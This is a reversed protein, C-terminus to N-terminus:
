RNKRSGNDDINVEFGSYTADSSGAMGARRRKNLSRDESKVVKGV